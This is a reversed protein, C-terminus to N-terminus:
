CKIMKRKKGATGSSIAKEILTPADPVKCATKGM